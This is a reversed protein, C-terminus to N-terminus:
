STRQLIDFMFHIRPTEGDNVVAHRATKDILYASGVALHHPEDNAFMIAHENTTLPVHIRRVWGPEAADSHPEIKSQPMVVSLWHNKDVYLSAGLIELLGLLDAVLPGFRQAFGHWKPDTVMAPRLQTLDGPPWEQLPIAEIWTVLEAVDLDSALLALPTSPLVSAM